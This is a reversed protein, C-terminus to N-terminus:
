GTHDRFWCQPYCILLCPVTNRWTLLLLPSLRIYLSETTSRVSCSLELSISRITRSITLHQSLHVEMVAGQPSSLCMYRSGVYRSEPGQEVWDWLPFEWNRAAPIGKKELGMIWSCSPLGLSLCIVNWTAGCIRSWLM